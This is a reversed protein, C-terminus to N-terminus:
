GYVTAQRPQASMPVPGVNETLQQILGDSSAHVRPTPPSQAGELSRPLLGLAVMLTLGLRIITGAIKTMQM